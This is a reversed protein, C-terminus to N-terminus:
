RRVGLRGPALFGVRTLDEVVEVRRFERHPLQSIVRERPIEREEPRRVENGATALGSLKNDTLLFRTYPSVARRRQRRPRTKPVPPKLYNQSRRLHGTQHRSHKKMPIRRSLFDIDLKNAFM